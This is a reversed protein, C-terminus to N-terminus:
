LLYIENETVVHRPAHRFVAVWRSPAKIIRDVEKIDLGGYNILLRKLQYPSSNGPFIVFTDTENLDRRTEKGNMSLHTCLIIYVNDSRGTEILDDKIRYVESKLLTPTINEIDDFIVLSDKFDAATLPQDQLLTEDIDLRKIFRYKDYEPDELKKSIIIVRNKPFMSHYALIYQGTWTSKGSGSCGSVLVMQRQGQEERPLLQMTGTNIKINKNIRENIVNNLEDDDDDDIDGYEVRRNFNAIEKNPMYRRNNYYDSPLVYNNRNVHETRPQVDKNYYIVDLPKNNHKVIALPRDSESYSLM